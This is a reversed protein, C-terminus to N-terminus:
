LADLLSLRVLYHCAADMKGVLSGAPWVRWQRYVVVLLSGETMPKGGADQVCRQLRGEGAVQLWNRPWSILHSRRGAISADRQNTFQEGQALM